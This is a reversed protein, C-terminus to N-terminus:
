LEVVSGYDGCLGGVKQAGGCCEEKIGQLFQCVDGMLTVNDGRLVDFRYLLKLSLIESALVRAEVCVLHKDGQGDASGRVGGCLQGKVLKRFKFAALCM